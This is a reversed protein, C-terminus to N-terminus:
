ALGFEKKIANVIFETKNPLNRAIDAIKKDTIFAKINYGEGKKIKEKQWNANTKARLNKSHETIKTKM